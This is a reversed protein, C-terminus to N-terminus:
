PQLMNRAHKKQLKWQYAFHSINANRRNLRRFLKTSFAVHFGFMYKSIDSVLNKTENAYNTTQSLKQVRICQNRVPIVMNVLATLMTTVQAHTTARVNKGLYRKMQPLKLDVIRVITVM